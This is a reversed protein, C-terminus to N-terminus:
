KITLLSIDVNFSNFLSELEATKGTDIKGEVRLISTRPISIKLDGKPYTQCAVVYGENIEKHSLKEKQRTRYEGQAVILKCRGCVGKGGCPATIHVNGQKLNELLSLNPYAEISQGSPLTLRM